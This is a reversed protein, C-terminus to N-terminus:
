SALTGAWITASGGPEGEAGPSSAVHFVLTWLGPRPPSFTLAFDRDHGLTIADVTVLGVVRMQRHGEVVFAIEPAPYRYSTRASAEERTLRAPPPDWGATMFQIRYPSRASAAIRVARSTVRRVSVRELRRTLFEQAMQFRGHSLAWGVGVHTALPDLITRRHGDDPPTEAMMQEHGSLALDRPSQDFADGTTIWSVSNESQYGFVAAFGTRAYPPLGDMLYHGRSREAVQQATLTDAVEAVREDWAVPVLGMKVRDRNIHEFVARKVRDRPQSPAPYSEELPADGSPVILTM